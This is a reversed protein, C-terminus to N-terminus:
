GLGNTNSSGLILCCNVTKLEGSKFTTVLNLEDDVIPNHRFFFIVGACCWELNRRRQVVLRTFTKSETSYFALNYTKILYNIVVPLNVSGLVQKYFVMRLQTGSVVTSHACFKVSFWKLRVSLSLLFICIGTIFRFHKCSKLQRIFDLYLWLFHGWFLFLADLPSHEQERFTCLVLKM